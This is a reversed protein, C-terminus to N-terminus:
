FFFVDARYDAVEDTPKASLQSGIKGIPVVVERSQEETRRHEKSM